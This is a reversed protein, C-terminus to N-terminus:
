FRKGEWLTNHLYIPSAQPHVGPREPLTFRLGASPTPRQPLLVLPQVARLVVDLGVFLRTLCKGVMQLRGLREWHECSGSFTKMSCQALQISACHCKRDELQPNSHQM